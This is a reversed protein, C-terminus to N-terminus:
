GQKRPRKKPKGKNPLQDKRVHVLRRTLETMKEFPTPEPPPPRNDSQGKTPRTPTEAM